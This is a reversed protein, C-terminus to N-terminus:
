NLMPNIFSKFGKVPLDQSIDYSLNLVKTELCITFDWQRKWFDNSIIDHLLEVVLIQNLHSNKLHCLKKDITTVM